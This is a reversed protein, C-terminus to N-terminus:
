LLRIPWEAPGRQPSAVGGSPRFHLTFHVGQLGHSEIDTARLDSETEIGYTLERAPTVERMALVLPDDGNLVATGSAPLARVLESKNLAIREVTGMRELHVP